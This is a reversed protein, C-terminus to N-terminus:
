ISYKKIVNAEGRLQDCTQFKNIKTYEVCNSCIVYTTGTDHHQIQKAQYNNTYPLSKPRACGILSILMLFMAILLSRKRWLTIQNKQYLWLTRFSKM